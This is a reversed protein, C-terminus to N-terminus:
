KAKIFSSFSSNAKNSAKKFARVKFYYTRGVNLSGIKYCNVSGSVTKVKKANEKKDQAMYIDYGDAGAAKKWKLTVTNGLWLASLVAPIKPATAAKVSTSATRVTESGSKKYAKVKFSYAKGSSLNKVAYKTTSASVTAIKKWQENSYRFIEYGTASSVKKWSLTVSGTGAASVSVTVKKKEFAAGTKPIVQTYTKSCKTCTYTKKGATNLTAKKDVKETYSHKSCVVKLKVTNSLDTTKTNLSNTAKVRVGYTGTKKGKLSLTYTRSTGKITVKSAKNWNFKGNSDAKALYVTYSGVDNGADTWTFKVKSGAQVTKGASPSSLTVNNLKVNGYVPYYKSAASNGRQGAKYRRSSPVEFYYCWYYAADYAGASNDPVGKLYNYIYRYGNSNLEHHLFKMQGEISLYNYGNRNCFNKLNQFRSGNWMCLGGSLKGNSDRAVRASNFSSEHEINSMVGCAAASNFGLENILYYYVQNKSDAALAPTSFVVSSIVCLVIVVSFVKILAKKM